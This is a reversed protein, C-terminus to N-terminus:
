AMLFQAVLSFCMASIGLKSAFFQYNQIPANEEILHTSRMDKAHIGIDILVVMFSFQMLM